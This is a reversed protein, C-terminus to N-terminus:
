PADASPMALLKRSGRIRTPRADLGLSVRSAVLPAMREMFADVNALVYGRGHDSDLRVVGFHRLVALLFGGTNISKGLFMPQLTSGTICDAQKLRDLIDLWPAWDDAFYGRASNATLRLAISEDPRVGVQFTLTSRHSLSPCTEALLVRVDSM